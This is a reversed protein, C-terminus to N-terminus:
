HCVEMYISLSASSLCVKVSPHDPAVGYRVLGYPTPLREYMHVELDRGAPSSAPVSSLIRSAAYFGSPGAGIIAVKLPRESQTPQTAYHRRIVSTSAITSQQWLRRVQCLVPIPRHCAKCLSMIYTLPCCSTASRSDSM